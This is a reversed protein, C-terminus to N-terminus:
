RSADIRSSWCQACAAGMLLAYLAAVAPNQIAYDVVAQLGVLASAALGTAPLMLDRRRRVLGAVCLASLSAVALVLAAGAPVGLEMATELYTNHAETFPEAIAQTRYPRFAQGFTGYGTGLWPSDTTAEITRHYLALRTEAHDGVLLFREATVAGGGAILVAGALATAVGVAALTRWLRMAGSLGLALLLVLIAAMTCVLGARSHTLLIATAVVFVGGALAAGRGALFGAILRRREVRGRVGRAAQALGDCLLATLCVLGLGAFVAFTNRNVFTATLDGRYSTKDFWLIREAGSLHAAIGYAAYLTAALAVAEIAAVARRRDRCLNLALYFVAGCAALRFVADWGDLPAVSVAGPVDRGLAAGAMAWLPHHWAAPGAGSAQFAAWALAGAFLLTPLAIRRLAVPPPHGVAVHVAWVSLALGATLGQAAWVWMDVAGLAAPAALVALLLAVFVVRSLDIPM